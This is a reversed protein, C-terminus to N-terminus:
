PAHRPRGEAPSSVRASASRWCSRRPPPNVARARDDEAFASAAGCRARRREKMPEDDLAISAPRSRSEETPRAGRAGAESSGCRERRASRRSPSSAGSAAFSRCAGESERPRQESERRSGRGPWPPARPRAGGFARSGERGRHSSRPQQQPARRSNARAVGLEQAVLARPERGGGSGGSRPASRAASRTGSM